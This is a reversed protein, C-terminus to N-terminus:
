SPATREKKPEKETMGKRPLRHTPLSPRPHNNADARLLAEVSTLLAARDDPAMAEVASELLADGLQAREMAGPHLGCQPCQDTQARAWQWGEGRERRLYDLTKRRRTEPTSPPDTTM